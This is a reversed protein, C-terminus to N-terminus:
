GMEHIPKDIIASFEMLRKIYLIINIKSKNSVSFYFYNVYNFLEKCLNGDQDYVFYYIYNKIIFSNVLFYINKESKKIGDNDYEILKYMSHHGNNLEDVIIKM